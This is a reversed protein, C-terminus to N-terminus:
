NFFHNDEEVPDLPCFLYSQDNVITHQKKWGRTKSSLTPVLVHNLRKMKLGFRSLIPMLVQWNGMFQKQPREVLDRIWFCKRQM